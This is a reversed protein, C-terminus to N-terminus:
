GGGEQSGSAALIARARRGLDYTDGIFGRVVPAHDDDYNDENAYWELAATVERVREVLARERAQSAALAVKSDRLQTLLTEVHDGMFDSM